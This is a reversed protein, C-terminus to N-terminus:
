DRRLLQGGELAFTKDVRLSSAVPQHSILMIAVARQHILRRIVEFTLRAADEDLMSTPEDLILCHPAAMLSAAIGIRQLEGGSLEGPFKFLIEPSLGMEFLIRAFDENARDQTLLLHSTILPQGRAINLWEFVRRRPNVAAYPDQFVIQVSSARRIENEV